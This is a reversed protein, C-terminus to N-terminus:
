LSNELVIDALVTIFATKANVAECVVVEKIGRSLAQERYLTDMEYVTESNDAVFGLPYILLGSVGRAALGDIVNPTSPGLWKVPGIKSQYALHIRISKPIHERIQEIAKEIESQYPDGKQILREPVSHASFLVDSIGTKKQLHANIQDAIVRIFGPHNGFRDILSVPVANESKDMLDHISQLVSGSTPKTFFPYLSVCVIGAVDPREVRKWVDAIFPHWYSMAPYVEYRATEARNLAEELASAQRAAIANLPSKGGIIEYIKRSKPLRKRALRRAMWSRMWRPMPMDIIYPDSFLHVLYPEVAELSDPGGM